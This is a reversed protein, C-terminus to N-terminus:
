YKEISPIGEQRAYRWKIFDKKVQHLTKGLFQTKLIIYSKRLYAVFPKRVVLM